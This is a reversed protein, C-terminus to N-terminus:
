AGITEELTEMITKCDICFNTVPRAKLRQLSIEEGCMECIGFTGEKIRALSENIKGILRSERARIHLTVSRTSELAAQDVPDVTKVTPELLETITVDAQELLDDIWHELIKHFYELEKNKM